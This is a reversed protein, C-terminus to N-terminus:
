RSEICSFFFSSFSRMSKREEEFTDKCTVNCLIDLVYGLIETDSRDNQMISLMVDLGQAGVEMRFSRSLAKLARCADRRDELLTSSRAREILRDVQRTRAPAPFGIPM